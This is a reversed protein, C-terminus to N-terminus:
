FTYNNNVALNTAGMVVVALGANLKGDISNVPSGTIFDDFGDKNFDGINSITYGAGGILTGNTFDPTNLLTYGGNGALIDSLYM